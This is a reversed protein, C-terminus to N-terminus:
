YEDAITAGDVAPARCLCQAAPYAEDPLRRCPMYAIPFTAGSPRRVAKQSAGNAQGADAAERQSNGHQGIHGGSPQGRGFGECLCRANCFASRKPRPTGDAHTLRDM